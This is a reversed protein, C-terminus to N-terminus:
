AHPDPAIRHALVRREFMTVLRNMGVATLLALLIGLYVHGTEFLERYYTILYGIGAVSALMETVLVGIVTLGLGIRLGSVISPIAFPLVIKLYIQRANAGAARGMTLYRTEVSRIGNLTNLAIPVFGTLVGFLVKSATGIGVWAMLLPYLIILPVAFLSTLVGGVFVASFSTLSGLVGILLGLVIAIAASAAIEILTVGFADLFKAGDRYGALAISSPAPLLLQNIAGTRVIAEWGALLAATWLLTRFWRPM